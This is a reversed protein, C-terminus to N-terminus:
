FGKKNLLEAAGVFHGNDQLYKTLYYATVHDWVGTVPIDGLRNTRAKLWPENLFTQLARIFTSPTSAVGDEVTGVSRQAATKTLKGIDGDVDLNAGHSVNLVQQWRRRTWEHLGANLDQDAPAPVLADGFALLAQYMTNRATWGNPKLTSDPNGRNVGNSVGEFDGRRAYTWLGNAEFYWVATLWFWRKDGLAGPNKVFVDADTVLGKTKCWAGFKGYNYRWTCQVAGRGIFPYYDNQRDRIATGPRGLYETTTRLWGSEMICTALFAAAEQPTTVKAQRLADDAGAALNDLTDLQRGRAGVADLAKGLMSGNLPM